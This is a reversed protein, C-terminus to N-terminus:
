REDGAREVGEQAMFVDESMPHIPIIRRRPTVMSQGSAAASAVLSVVITLVLSSMFKRWM